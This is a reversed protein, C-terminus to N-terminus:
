QKNQSINIWREEGLITKYSNSQVEEDSKVLKYYIDKPIIDQKHEMVMHATSTEFFNRLHKFYMAEFEGHM